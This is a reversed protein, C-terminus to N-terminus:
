GSGKLHGRVVDALASIFAPDDNMSATRVLRIGAEKATAQAEIDIDYLIELHDAVFGCPCSVIARHGDAAAKAIVEDLPPGLWPVGTRGASQWAVTYRELGLALAVGDATEQLQKPYPDGEDAIRAPLSHASFVVLDRGREEDTLQNRADRVREALLELFGPHVHWSEIFDMRLSGDDPLAKRARDMYGGISMRAFHPAMVLGLGVRIGDGAMQEVVDGVFPPSHKYGVYAKVPRGGERNLEAELSDAQARTIRDLPFTNGIAAYRRRLDEVLEPAPTRGGRIDTYYREIDDPGSATGYAMVLLGLPETM